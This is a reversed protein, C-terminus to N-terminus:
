LLFSRVHNAITMMNALLFHYECYTIFVTYM